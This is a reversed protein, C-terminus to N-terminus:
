VNCTDDDSAVGVFDGVDAVVAPLEVPVTLVECGGRAFDDVLEL